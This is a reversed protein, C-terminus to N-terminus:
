YTSVWGQQSSSCRFIPTCGYRGYWVCWTRHLCRNGTAGLSLDEVTNGSVCHESESATLARVARDLTV